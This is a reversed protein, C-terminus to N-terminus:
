DDEEGVVNSRGCRMAYVPTKTMGGLAGGLSAVAMFPCKMRSPSLM